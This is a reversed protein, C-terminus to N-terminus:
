NNYPLIFSAEPFDLSVNEMSLPHAVVGKMGTVDTFRRRAYYYGPWIHGNADFDLGQGNPRIEPISSKISLVRLNSVRDAMFQFIKNAFNQMLTQCFYVHRNAPVTEGASVNDFEITPLNFIRLACLRPHTSLVALTDAFEGEPHFATGLKAISGLNVVPMNVALYELHICTRIIITMDTASFSTRSQSEGTGMMLWKLKQSHSLVCEKAICGHGSLQLQLAELKPCVKLLNEIAKVSKVPEGLQAPLVIYISGLEGVGSTYYSTVADRHAKSRVFAFVNGVM